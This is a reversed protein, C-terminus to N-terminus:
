LVIVLVIILVVLLFLYFRLAREGLGALSTFTAHWPRAICNYHILGIAELIWGNHGEPIWGRNQIYRHLDGASGPRAEILGRLMGNPRARYARVTNRQILQAVYRVIAALQTGITADFPVAVGTFGKVTVAAAPEPVLDSGPQSGSGSGPQSGAESGALVPAAAPEPVPRLVPETATPSGSASFGSSLRFDPESV